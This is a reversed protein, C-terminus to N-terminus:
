NRTNLLQRIYNPRKAKQALFKDKDWGLEKRLADERPELKQEKDTDIDGGPNSPSGSYFTGGTEEKKPPIMLRYADSMRAKIDERTSLGSLNFKSLTRKFEEYKLGGPDNSESFESHERKFEQEARTREAKITESDRESLIKRIISEPDNGGNLNDEGEKDKAAKEEAEQARKRLEKMEESMNTQAAEAAERAIREEELKAKLEEATLETNGESENGQSM